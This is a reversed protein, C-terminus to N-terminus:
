AATAAPSKPPAAARPASFIRRLTEVVEPSPEPAADVVDHIHSIVDDGLLARREAPTM